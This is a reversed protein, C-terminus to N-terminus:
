IAPMDRPQKGPSAAEDAAHRRSARSCQAEDGSEIADILAEHIAIRRRKYSVTKSGPVISEASVELLELLGLSVERLIDNRCIQVIRRHLKWIAHAFDLDNGITQGLSDLCGRLERIDQATRYRAAELLCLPDTAARLAVADAVTKPDGKVAVLAEGIRLLPHPEAVFVGGGPGTRITVKGQAQLIRLAENITALAVGFHDRLEVKTGLRHGPPHKSLTASLLDAIQHGRMRDVAAPAQPLTM